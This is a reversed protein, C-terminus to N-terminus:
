QNILEDLDYVDEFKNVLISGGIWRSEESPAAVTEQQLEQQQQQQEGEEAM